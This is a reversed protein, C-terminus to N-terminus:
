EVCDIFVVNKLEYMEDSILYEFRFGYGLTYESYGAEIQAEYYLYTNGDEDHIYEVSKGQLQSMEWSRGYETINGHGDYLSLSVLQEALAEEVKKTEDINWDPATIHVQYADMYSAKFLFPHMVDNKNWTVDGLEIYGSTGNSLYIDQRLETRYSTGCILLDPEADNNIDCISIFPAESEMPSYGLGYSFPYKEGNIWVAAPENSDEVYFLININQETSYFAVGVDQPLNDTIQAPLDSSSEATYILMANMILKNTGSTNEIINNSEKSRSSCSTLTLSLSSLICIIMAWAVSKIRKKSKM